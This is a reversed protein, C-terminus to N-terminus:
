AVPHLLPATPGVRNAAEQWHRSADFVVVLGPGPLVGQRHYRWVKPGARMVSPRGMTFMQVGVVLVPWGFPGM